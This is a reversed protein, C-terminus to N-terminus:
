CMLCLDFGLLVLLLFLLVVLLLGSDYFRSRVPQDDWSWGPAMRVPGPASVADVLEDSLLFGGVVGGSGDGEVAAAEM